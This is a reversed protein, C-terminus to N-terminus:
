LMGPQPLWAQTQQMPHQYLQSLNTQTLVTKPEGVIIKGQPYLLILKQCFVSALNVDHLSMLISKGQQTALDALYRLIHIQYHNDLHNTPEDLLFIEPDQALLAAIALRRCEGGSLTHISKRAHNQLDMNTLAQDVIRNHTHLNTLLSVHPYRSTLCFEKVSQPFAYSGTQNLLGILQGKRKSALTSLHQQNLYIDGAQAPLLGALTHLLTTKGIGNAGLIGWMEGAQITLNLGQCIWQQNIKVNLQSLTLEAM